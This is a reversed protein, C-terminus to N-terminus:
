QVVPSFLVKKLLDLPDTLLGTKHAVNDIPDYFQEFPTEGIGVGKRIGETLSVTFAKQGLLKMMAPFVRFLYKTFTLFGVTNAYKVYRNDLYGYNVHLQDVYNLMKQDVKGNNNEMHDLLIIMKNVADSYTTLKMVSDHIRSEKKIYMLDFLNKLSEKSKSDKAKKLIKDIKEEMLGKNDFFDLNIDELIANYQGDEIIVSIPIAKMEKDLNDIKKQSINEGAEKRIELQIKEDRLEQYENMMGWVEKFKSMYKIPDKYSTHQLAVIMNSTMNGKITAPTYAVIVTKWRQVIEQVIQEMKKAIVQRKKRDKIWPANVISVDKYGFYDVMLSEEIMLKGKNSKDIEKKLYFPIIDWYEKYKGKSDKSIEIFNYKKSNKYVKHFNNLYLLSARNNVMAEQKHTLNSVSSAVTLILDDDLGLGARKNEHSIRIKYDYITGQGSREPILAEDTFGSQETALKDITEEIMDEDMGGLERLVNKLSDGENRLQIASMLGESYSPDTNTGMVVYIDKGLIRSLEKHKGTNFMKAKVLERMEKEDVLYHKLNKDFNEEKAGKVQYMKDGYYAKTLVQKENEAMLELVRGLSEKKTKLAKLTGDIDEKSSLEIAKLSVAKDIAEIDDDRRSGMEGLAIQSANVYGNRMGSKNTVLLKALNEIALLTGENMGKTIEQLDEGVKSSDKLYEEVIDLDGLVKTDLDILIRKVNRRTVEDLEGLKYTEELVKATKNKVAVVEREVFAKSKRFMEYFRAVEVNGMDRTVSSFLNNQLTWSRVKALGRIKWIADIYKRSKDKNNQAKMYEDMTKYEQDIQGTFKAIKEDLKSVKDLFKDMTDQDNEAESKHAMRLSTELLDLTLDKASDGKMKKASYVSNIIGIIKNWLKTWRGTEKVPSMFEMKSLSKILGLENVLQENTTAYALFEDAPYKDNEFVYEWKKKADAVDPNTKGNTFVKWGDGKYKKDLEAKIMNKMKIISYALTKNEKIAKRILVHQLEHAFVETMTNNVQNGLYMRIKGLEPDATGRTNNKAELDKFFEVDIKVDKGASELVSMYGELIGALHTKHKSSLKDGDLGAVKSFYDHMNQVVTGSLAGLKIFDGKFHDESGLMYAGDRTMKSELDFVYEGDNIRVLDASIMEATKVKVDVFTNGELSELTVTKGILEATKDIGFYERQQPDAYRGNKKARIVSEGLRKYYERDSVARYVASLDAGEDLVDKLKAECKTM